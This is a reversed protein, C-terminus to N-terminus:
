HTSEPSGYFRQPSQASLYQAKQKTGAFCSSAALNTMHKVKLVYLIQMHNIVIIM